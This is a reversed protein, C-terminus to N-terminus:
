DEFDAIENVLASFLTIVDSNSKRLKICLQGAIERTIKLGIEPNEDGFQIFNERKIVLCDCDSKAYVTASRQDNDLLALEGVSIGGKDANLETVTYTENQMTKKQIEISGLLVIYLDDGYDGENILYQGAKFYKRSCICYIKKIVDLDDRFMKLFSVERLRKIIDENDTIRCTGYM